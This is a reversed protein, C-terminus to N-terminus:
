EWDERRLRVRRRKSAARKRRKRSDAPLKNMIGEGWVDLRNPNTQGKGM